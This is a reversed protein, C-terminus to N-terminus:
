KKLYYNVYQAYLRHLVASIQKKANERSIIGDAVGSKLLAEGRATKRLEQVYQELASAREEVPLSELQRRFLLEASIELPQVAVEADPLAFVYDAGIGKSCMAIFAGGYAQGALLTIKPVDANIYARYIRTGERVIGNHESVVGPEFGPTDVITLLPINFNSCMEIFQSAKICAKVDIY